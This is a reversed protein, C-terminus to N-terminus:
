DKQLSSSIKRSLTRSKAIEVGAFDAEPEPADAIAKGLSEM